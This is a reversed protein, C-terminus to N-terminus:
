AEVPDLLLLQRIHRGLDDTDKFPKEIIIDAVCDVHDEERMDGSMLIVATAPNALKAERAIELGETGTPIRLDTIILDFPKAHRLWYTASAASVLNVVVADPVFQEVILGVLEVIAVQDDVILVRKM